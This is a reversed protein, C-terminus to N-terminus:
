RVGGNGGSIAAYIFLPDASKIHQGRTTTMAQRLRAVKDRMTCVYL